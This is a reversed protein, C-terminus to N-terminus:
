APGRAKAPLGIEWFEITQLVWFIAFITLLLAEVVFVAQAPLAWGLAQSGFYLGLAVVLVTLMAAAIARYWRRYGAPSLGRIREGPERTVVVDRGNVWAVAILCLFLLVAAVYHAWSLFADPWVLHWGAVAAWALWTAWLDWGDRRVLDRRRPWTALVLVAFGAILLAGVNNAVREPVELCYPEGTCTDPRLPTPVVAALFALMGAFNLLVDEGGDRGKIAILCLGVVVQVGILISQVPTYFYASIASLWWDEGPGAAAHDASIQLALATFLALVMSVIGVRLYRYTLSVGQTQAM